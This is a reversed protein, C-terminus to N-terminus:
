AQVKCNPWYAIVGKGMNDTRPRPVDGAQSIDRYLTMEEADEILQILKKTTM